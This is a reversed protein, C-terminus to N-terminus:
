EVEDTDIVDPKDWPPPKSRTCHIINSVKDHKMDFWKGKHLAYAQIYEMLEDAKFEKTVLISGADDMKLRKLVQHVHASLADLHEDVM